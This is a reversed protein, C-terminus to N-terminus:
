IDNKQQKLILECHQKYKLVFICYQGVSIDNINISMKFATSMDVIINMFYNYDLVSEEGQSEVQVAMEQLDILERKYHALFVKLAKDLSEISYEKAKPIPYDFDFLQNYLEECPRIRIVELLTRARQVRSQMIITDKVSNLKGELEKGGIAETYENFIDGWVSILEDNSCEGEIILLNYNKTTLIDIFAVLPLKHISRYINSLIKPQTITKKTGFNQIKAIM